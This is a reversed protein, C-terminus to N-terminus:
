MLRYKSGSNTTVVGNKVVRKAPSTVIKSGARFVSSNSINGTITGDPNQSWDTLIPIGDERIRDLPFSEYAQAISFTRGPLTMMSRKQKRQNISPTSNSDNKPIPTAKTTSPRKKKNEKVFFSMFNQKKPLSPPPIPKKPLPSDRTASSSSGKSISKQFLSLLSAGNQKPAPEFKPQEVEDIQGTKGGGFFNMSKQQEKKDTAEKQMLSNVEEQLLSVKKSMSMLKEERESSKKTPSENSESINFIKNKEDPESSNLTEDFYGILNLSLNIVGLVLGIGTGVGIGVGLGLGAGLGLGGGIGAGIGMGTGVGVGTGLGTGLTSGLDSELPEKNLKLSIDTSVPYTKIDNEGELKIDNVEVTSSTCLNSPIPVDDNMENQGGTGQEDNMPSKLSMDAAVPYTKVENVEVTSSTGLNSPIPVYGIRENQGTTGQEKNMPSKLLMDKTNPDIKAKNEEQLKIDNDKMSSSTNLNSPIPVDVIRKDKGITGQEDNIPISVTDDHSVNIEMTSSKFLYSSSTQYQVERRLPSSYDENIIGEVLREIIIEAEQEVKKEVEIEYERESKKGGNDPGMQFSSANLRMRKPNKYCGNNTAPRAISPALGNGIKSITGVYLEISSPMRRVNNDGNHYRTSINVVETNKRSSLFPFANTYSLNTAISILLVSIFVVNKAALIFSCSKM